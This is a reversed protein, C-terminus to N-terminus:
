PYLLVMLPAGYSEAKFYVKNAEEQGKVIAEPTCTLLEKATEETLGMANLFNKTLRQETQIDKISQLAGGIAVARHFLGKAVPALMLDM